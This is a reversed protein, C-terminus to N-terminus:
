MSRDVISGYLHRGETRLHVVSATVCPLTLCKVGAVLLPLPPPCCRCPDIELEPDETLSVRITDGLGDMLLAGIGIASKMRGDEGEGAQGAGCWVACSLAENGSWVKGGAEHCSGRWRRLWAAMMENRVTGRDRVHMGAHDAHCGPPVAGSRRCSPDCAAPGQAVLSFTRGNTHTSPCVETVGLHIPYDWQKAYMEEALLRYAQAWGAPAIPATVLQM